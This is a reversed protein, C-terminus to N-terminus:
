VTRSSILNENIKELNKLDFINKANKLNKKFINTYNSM